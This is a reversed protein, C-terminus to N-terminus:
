IKMKRIGSTLLGTRRHDGLARSSDIRQVEQWREDKLGSDIRHVDESAGRGADHAGVKVVL